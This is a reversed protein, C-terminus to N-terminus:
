CPEDSGPCTYDVKMKSNPFSQFPSELTGTSLLRPKPHTVKSDRRRILVRWLHRSEKAVRNREPPERTWGGDRGPNEEKARKRARLIHIELFM